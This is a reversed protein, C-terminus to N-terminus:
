PWQDDASGRKQEQNLLWGEEVVRVDEPMDLNALPDKKV